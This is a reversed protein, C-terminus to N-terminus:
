DLRGENLDLPRNAPGHVVDGNRHFRSGHCPCDWTQEAANEQVICGMHTCAPQDRKFIRDGVVHKVSDLSQEVFSRGSARLNLRRPDYLERWVNEQGLVADHFVLAAVMSHTMGWGRFGTASWIGEHGGFPGIFPVSDVPRMDHTSWSYPVSDVSFTTRAWEELRGYRDRTDGGEGVRHPEGGVLLYEEDGLRCPRTSRFNEGASMHMGEPVDGHLRVALLYSARPMVRASLPGHDFVPFHTAVIIHRATVTATDCTVTMARDDLSRARSHEHVACGGGDIMAALALMYQRPHFCAQDALAVAGFTAHPLSPEAVFTAALGAAQAAVVENEVSRAESSSAAYTTTTQRELGCEIGHREILGVIAQLATANADAYLAAPEKGLVGALHSYALGHLATVKATTHGSVGQGIAGAEIVIVRLGAQKLLFATQLGTMGGGIVLADVEHHGSLHPYGSDQTTALWLSRHGGYMGEM